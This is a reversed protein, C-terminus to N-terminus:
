TCYSGVAIGGVTPPTNLPLLSFAFLLIFSFISLLHHFEISKLRMSLNVPCLLSLKEELSPYWSKTSQHSLHHLSSEKSSFRCIFVTISRKRTGAARLSHLVGSKNKLGIRTLKLMPMYINHNKNWLETMEKNATYQEGYERQFNLFETQTNNFLVLGETRIRTESYGFPEIATLIAPSNLAGNIVLEIQAMSETLSKNKGM